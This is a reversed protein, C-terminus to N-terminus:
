GEGIDSILKTGLDSRVALRTRGGDPGAGWTTFLRGAPGNSGCRVVLGPGALSRGGVRWDEM